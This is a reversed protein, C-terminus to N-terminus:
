KAGFRQNNKLIKSDLASQIDIDLRHSLEVLYMFVDAIEDSVRGKQEVSLRASEEPNLWQFEALLEGAEVAIAAAINKPTHYEQWGHLAAIKRFERSIRSIDLLHDAPVKETM